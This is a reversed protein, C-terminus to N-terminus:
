DMAFAGVGVLMDLALQEDGEVFVTLDDVGLRNAARLCFEVADAVLVVDPEGAVPAADPGLSRVWTGGGDGTLVIRASRGAGSRGCAQMGLPLVSVATDTMLALRAPEIDGRPLAQSRLVDDRHTWLEFTRVVLLTRLSMPFQHFTVPRDLGARDMATLHAILADSTAIWSDVVGAFSASRSADVFSQSMAVHDTDTVPDHEPPWLGIQAGMYHDIARVHAVTDRATRGAFELRWDGDRLAALAERLAVVSRRYAEVEDIAEFPTSPRVHGAPRAALAAAVIREGLGVPPTADVQTAAFAAAAVWLETVIAAAVSDDAVVTEIALAEDADVADLAYAALDDRTWRPVENMEIGTNRDDNDGNM